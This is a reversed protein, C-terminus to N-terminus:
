KAVTDGGNRNVLSNYSQNFKQLEEEILEKYNEFTIENIDIMPQIYTNCERLVEEEIDLGLSIFYKSIDRELFETIWLCILSMVKSGSQGIEQRQLNKYIYTVIRDNNAFLLLKTALNELPTSPIDIIEQNKLIMVKKLITKVFSYVAPTYIEKSLHISSIVESLEEKVLNEINDQFLFGLDRNFEIYVGETTSKLDVEGSLNQWFLRKLNTVRYDTTYLQNKDILLTIYDITHDLNAMADVFQHEDLNSLIWNINGRIIFNKGEITVVEDLRKRKFLDNVNYDGTKYHTDSKEVNYLSLGLESYEDRLVFIDGSMNKSYIFNKGAKIQIINQLPNEQEASIICLRVDRNSEILYDTQKGVKYSTSILDLSKEVRLFEEFNTYDKDIVDIKFDFINLNNDTLWLMKAKMGLISDPYSEILRNIDRLKVGDKVSSCSIDTYIELFLKELESKNSCIEVENILIWNGYSQHVRICIDSAYVEPFEALRWGESNNVESMYVSKWVPAETAEKYLIEYQHIEGNSGSPHATKFELKSIIEPSSLSLYVDGYGISTSYQNSHFYTSEDDDLMKDPTCSSWTSVNSKATITSKPIYKNTAIDGINEVGYLVITIESSVIKEINLTYNEGDKILESKILRSVGNLDVYRIDAELVTESTTFYIKDLTRKETLPVEFEKKLARKLLLKKANSIRELYTQTKLDKEINEVDALTVEDKIETELEDTFLNGIREEILNHKFMDMEHIMVYKNKGNTVRICIESALVPKFFAYRDDGVEETLQEFVKQWEENATTKYLVEYARIRGNGTGNSDSRTILHVRDILYEKGLEVTFDGYSGSYGASHFHTDLRDDIARDPSNSAHQGCHSTAIMITKDLRVDVDEDEYFDKQNLPLININEIEEELLNDYIVLEFEKAYFYEFTLELSGNKNEVELLKSQKLHGYNDEYFIEAETINKSTVLEIKNIVNKINTEISFVLCIDENKINARM